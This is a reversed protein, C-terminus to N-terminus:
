LIENSEFFGQNAKKGGRKLCSLDAKEMFFRNSVDKNEITFQITIYM